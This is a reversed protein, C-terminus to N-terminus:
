SRKLDASRASAPNTSSAFAPAGVQIPESVTTTKSSAPVSEQYADGYKQSETSVVDNVVVGMIDVGLATLLECGEEITTLKNKSARVVMVLADVRSAVICPDSVAVLPPTDVIIYDFEARLRTLLDEFNSSGLLEAPNAPTLGASLVSLRQVECKQVANEFQIDGSVVDGLGVEHRLQFIKDVKPCRLDADILLVKKGAHAMALSLNAAVTTKGDQPEPSTVQIVKLGQKQCRFFLATRVSRYAEAEASGPRTLYFLTPELDPRAKAAVQLSHPSFTPVQGLVSLGFNKRIDDASKLRHDTVAFFYALGFAISFGVAGGLGLCQIPRKLSKETHVPTIEEMSYGEDNVVMQAKDLRNVEDTHLLKLRQIDDNFQKDKTLFHDFKKADKDAEEFLKTLELDRTQLHQLEYQLALKLISVADPAAALEDGNPGQGVKREPLIVGQRRFFEKVNRINERVTQLGYYEPGFGVRVLKAEEMLLPLLTTQLTNLQGATDAAFGAALATGGDLQMLKRALVELKDDSDGRAIADDLAKMKAKVATIETRNKRREVEYEMVRQQYVNTTDGPLGTSGAPTKWILPATQRFTAYEREKKQADAWIKDAAGRISDVSEQGHRKRSAVLYDNYSDIVGALIQQADKENGWNFTLEFVNLTSKEQGGIRKVRLADLIERDPELEGALSRLGDLHHKKVAPGIVKPSMIIHIHEARDGLSSVDREDENLQKPIKKTILIRASADYTPGFKLLALYGFVLGISLGAVLWWRARLAVQWVDPHGGLAAAEPSGFVPLNDLSEISASAATLRKKIM